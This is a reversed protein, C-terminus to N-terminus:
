PSNGALLNVRKQLFYCQSCLSFQHRGGARNLARATKIHKYSWWIAVLSDAFANGLGFQCGDDECCLSVNGDYRIHLFYSPQNCPLQLAEANKAVESYVKSGQRIICHENPLSFDLRTKKFQSRWFIIEQQKEAETRYDYLGITLHDVLGDLQACLEHNRRLVDGNTDDKLSLGKAKIYTAFELYRHDLLPESLRHLKIVGHFRLAQAQAIIRYVQRSPMQQNIPRGKADKRVGSRDLYRPCFVCDRNCASQLDIELSSWM